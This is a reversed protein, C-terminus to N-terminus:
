CLTYQIYPANTGVVSGTNANNGSPTGAGANDVGIGTPSDEIPLPLNTTTTSSLAGITPYNSSGSDSLRIQFGHGHEPDTVGHNHDALVDGNFVHTHQGVERNEQDELATGVTAGQTGTSNSVIYRGDADTVPNYGSPCSGEFWFMAGQPVGSLGQWDTGNYTMLTQTSSNYFIGGETNISPELQPLLMLTDTINVGGVYTANGSVNEWIGSGGSGTNFYSGNNLVSDLAYSDNTSNWNSTLLYDQLNSIQSETLSVNTWDTSNISGVVRLDGSEFIMNDALVNGSFLIIFALFFVGFKFGRKKGMNKSILKKYKIFRLTQTKM